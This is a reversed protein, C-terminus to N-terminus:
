CFFIDGIGQTPMMKKWSTGTQELKRTEQCQETGTVHSLEQKCMQRLEYDPAYNYEDRILLVKECCIEGNQLRVADHPIKGSISCRPISTNMAELVLKRSFKDRCRKMLFEVEDKLYPVWTHFPADPHLSCLVLAKVTKGYYKELIWAYSSLQIAYKAGDCDELHNLPWSLKKNWHDRMHSALKDSRKWDVIILSGDPFSGVFDVSGALNEEEAYIEWETRYAKINNPLLQKKVFELGVKVEPQENRCPDSNMWLEMQFHAETGRNRAEPSDWLTKIEEITMGREYSYFKFKSFNLLSKDIEEVKGSYLTMEKDDLCLVNGETPASDIREAGICYKLRPWKQRKSNIMNNIIKDPEFAEAFEKILGSVSADIFREHITYIHPKEYFVIHNDREHKFKQQLLKERHAPLEYEQMYSCPESSAEGTAVGHRVDEIDTHAADTPADVKKATVSRFPLMKMDADSTEFSVSMQM